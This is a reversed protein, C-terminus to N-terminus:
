EKVIEITLEVDKDVLTKDAWSGEYAINWDLRNFTFIAKFYDGSQHALFEINKSVERITLNGSIKLSDNQIKQVSTLELKSIPFNAVDFFDNSKLHDLLNKRAITEHIPMDTVDMTEMDVIFKGGVLEGNLFLLLGEKFSIVGTRKRTGRMKTVVWGIRSKELNIKFTDGQLEVSPEVTTNVTVMPAESIHKGICSAMLLPIFLYLLRNM